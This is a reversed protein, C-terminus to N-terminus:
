DRDKDRDKTRYPLTTYDRRNTTFGSHLNVRRCRIRGIKTFEISSRDLLLDLAKQLVWVETVAAAEWHEQAENDPVGERTLRIRYFLSGQANFNESSM